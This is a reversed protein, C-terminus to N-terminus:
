PSLKSTKAAVLTWPGITDFPSLDHGNAKNKFGTTVLMGNQVSVSMEVSALGLTWTAGNRTVYADQSTEAFCQLAIPPAFIVLALNQLAIKILSRM